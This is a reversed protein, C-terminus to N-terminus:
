PAGANMRTVRAEAEALPPVGWAAREADTVAPDVPYLEWRGETMRFQTGYKQPEGRSMLLRDESAAALWKATTHTPDLEVAKLALDHARQYDAPEHGHQFIMAAHFYDVAVKAEGADLIAEVRVRRAEDRAAIDLAAKEAPPLRRDGQDAEYLAALERNITALFAEQNRRVGEEVGKWRPDDHLSGLDPDGTLHGADRFGLAVANELRVFAGDVRGALALCCAADYAQNRTEPALRLADDDLDACRAYDKAAYAEAAQARLEAASAPDSPGAVAAHERAPRVPGPRAACGLLPLLLVLLRGM